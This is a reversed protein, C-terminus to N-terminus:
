LASSTQPAEHGHLEQGVVDRVVRNPQLAERFDIFSRRRPRWRRLKVGGGGICGNSKVPQTAKVGHRTVVFYYARWM